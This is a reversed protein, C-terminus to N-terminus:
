GSGTTNTATSNTRPGVTSWRGYNRNAMNMVVTVFNNMAADINAPNRDAPTPPNPQTRGASQPGTSSQQSQGTASNNQQSAQQAGQTNQQAAQQSPQQQSGTQQPQQQSNRRRSARIHHSNCPLFPDFTSAGLGSFLWLKM